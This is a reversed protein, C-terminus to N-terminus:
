SVLETRKPRISDYRVVERDSSSYAVDVLIEDVGDLSGKEDGTLELINLRLAWALLWIAPIIDESKILDLLLDCINPIFAIRSRVHFSSDFRRRIARAAVLRVEDHKGGVFIKVLIEWLESVGPHARVVEGVLGSVFYISAIQVAPQADALLLARWINVFSFITDNSESAIVDCLADVTNARRSSEASNGQVLAVLTKRTENHASSFAVSSQLRYWIKRLVACAISTTEPIQLLGAMSQDDLRGQCFFKLIIQGFSTM